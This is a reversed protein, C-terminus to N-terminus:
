KELKDTDVEPLKCDLGTCTNKSSDCWLRIHDNKKAQLEGEDTFSWKVAKNYTSTAQVFCSISWDFVTFRDGSPMDSAMGRLKEHTLDFWIAQKNDIQHQDFQLKKTKPKDGAELKDTQNYHDQYETYSPLTIEIKALKQKKGKPSKKAYVGNTTTILLCTSLLLFFLSTITNTNSKLLM